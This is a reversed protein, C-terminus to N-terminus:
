LTIHKAGLFNKGPSSYTSKNTGHWQHKNSGIYHNKSSALFHEKRKQVFGKPQNMYIDEELEGNLFSMKVKMQHIELDITARLALIYQINTFKAVLVFTEYFDVRVIQFYWKTIPRAKHKV